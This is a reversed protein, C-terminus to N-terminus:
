ESAARIARVIRAYGTCRCLNGVLAARIAEEDPSPDRELLAVAAVVVGPTCFGCQIAGIEGLAQQVREARGSETLGAVTVVDSGRTQIAPVLCAPVLRGDLLVSCSGCVGEWCADKAGRVDLRERLVFLLSEDAGVDVAIARGDVTLEVTM